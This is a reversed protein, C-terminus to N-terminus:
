HTTPPSPTSEMFTIPWFLSDRQWSDEEGRRFEVRLDYQGLGPPFPLGATRTRFRATAIRHTVPDTFTELGSQSVLAFRLSISHGMEEPALRFYAHIELPMRHGPPPSQGPRVNVQEVMSFLSINNSGQDLSSGSTIALLYCNPM